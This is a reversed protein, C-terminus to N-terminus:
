QGGCQGTVAVEGDADYRMVTVADDAGITIVDHTEGRLSWGIWRHLALDARPLERGLLAPLFPAM